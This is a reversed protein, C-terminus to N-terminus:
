EIVEDPMYDRCAVRGIYYDWHKPSIGNGPRKVTLNDESFLEGSKIYKAAVLSKRAIKMNKIESLSSKKRGDGLASEIMRIGKVMDSLEKPELSARHDPGTLTKDLTFHKEILCAGKAVAAIPVLIGTTHDSYGVPLGFCVKLTDMANLNIENEPAPYETTCHLLTIQEEKTGSSILINLAYEIDGLNSMGTSLVINKGFSGIKRLYPTNEIEGSPIKWFPMDMTNLFEVSEMDFATSAIQIGKEKGYKFLRSQEDFSFELSKLMNLQINDNGGINMKQYEAKEAKETVLNGAIFSQFKVVDAGSDKAEDVLKYARELSGNHNVGAEAIVIIRSM